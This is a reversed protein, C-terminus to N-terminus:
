GVFDVFVGFDRLDGWDELALREGRRRGEKEEERKSGIAVKRQM